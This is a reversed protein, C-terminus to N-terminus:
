LRNPSKKAINKISRSDVILLSPTAEKGQKERIYAVLINNIQEFTGDDRWRSYYEFVTSKPPFGEPLYAWQCGTRNIYFIANLVERLDVKRKRGLGSNKPILPQLLLWEENNLDSPYPKKRTYSILNNSSNNQNTEKTKTDM